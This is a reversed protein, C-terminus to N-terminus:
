AACSEGLRELMALCQSLQDLAVFEDPKHAQAISGPGCIVVSMGLSQFLGAETGFSVVDASNIGTLEAILHRAANDDVPALGVVEGVTETSIDADPWIRRMEPLLEKAVLDHLAQKVFAADADRVPRMEWELEAKGPIVNHAVGGSLRGVNVTSWPPDYRSSAPARARLEDALQMLRTVYRVAYLVANVGRDPASGHGELGTFRTTYECCGKHGEIVGMMTPEGVIAVSPLADRGRLVEVLSQAGLCGVEEDHTFAFHIPRRLNRAAFSPALALTAAIFGKMDCAGRGFLHGDKEWMDWPDGSWDQDTVPVVDSHGSLVVGGGIDPGLTAFLNCKHGTEDHMLDVRAGFAELRNAMYAMMDLNSDCSVTPFGILDRLILQTHALNNM